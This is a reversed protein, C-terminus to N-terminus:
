CIVVRIVVLYVDLIIVMVKSEVVSNVYMRVNLDGDFLM